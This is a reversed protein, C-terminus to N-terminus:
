ARSHKLPQTQTLLHTCCLYTCLLSYLLNSVVHKSHKQINCCHQIIDGFRSGCWFKRRLARASLRFSINQVMFPHLAWEPHPLLQQGLHLLKLIKPTEWTLPFNLPLHVPTTDATLPNQVQRKSYPSFEFYFLWWDVLQDVYGGGITMLKPYHGFSHTRLYLRCFQTEESSNRSGPSTTWPTKLM